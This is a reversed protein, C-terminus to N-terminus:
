SRAEQDDVSSRLTDLTAFGEDLLLMTLDSETPGALVLITDVTTEAHTVDVTVVKQALLHAIDDHDFGVGVYRRGDPLEGHFRVTM